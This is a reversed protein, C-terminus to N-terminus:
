QRVIAKPLIDETEIRSTEFDTRDVARVRSIALSEPFGARKTWNGFLQDEVYIKCVVIVYSRTTIFSIYAM